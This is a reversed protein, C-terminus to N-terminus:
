KAADDQKMYEVCAFSVDQASDCKLKLHYGQSVPFFEKMSKQIIRKPMEAVLVNELKQSLMM